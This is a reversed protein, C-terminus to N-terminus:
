LLDIEEDTLAVAAKSKNGRGAKRLEKQKSQLSKRTLEFQKDNIISVPYYNKKLHRELSSVLCRLSSPEYDEGDKRRVSLIFEALYKNLEAPAITHVERLDNDEKRLFEEFLQVDRKTKEKTNRNETSEVYDEVSTEYAVFRKESMKEFFNSKSFLGSLSNTCNQSRNSFDFATLEPKFLFRKSFVHYTARSQVYRKRWM